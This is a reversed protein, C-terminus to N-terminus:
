KYGKAQLKFLRAYRGNKKLLEEHSGTEVVRGKDMVVIKDAMRVTSFRHSILFTIRDKTLHEFKKFLEYEARADVAATPEDLILIPADRYFARALAIKQWQGVSLDTGGEKLKKGLRTKYKGELEKIFEWAGSKLASGHVDKRANLRGYKINEEVLAEYKMFDQFIVGINDYLDNLGFRTLNVGDILIHGSSVEYLRSLLKVLTTKGSGNEGVLAVSEGPAVTFSVADLAPKKAHPYTFSVNRFEIGKRLPQPLPVPHEAERILPKLRLVKVIPTLFIMHTNLEGTMRVLWRVHAAFQFLLAWLFTLQGVTMSGQLFQAIVLWAAVVSLGTEVIGILIYWRLQEYAAADQKTIFTGFLNWFRSLFHPQLRFSKIEKIASADETLLTRYYYAHRSIPSAESFASWVVNSWRMAVFIGPLAAGLIIPVLRWDAAFLAVLIVGVSVLESLAFTVQWFLEVLRWQNGTARSLTNHYESDEFYGLDLSSIKRMLEHMSYREIRYSHMRRLVSSIDWFVNQMFRAFGYIVLVGVVALGIQQTASLQSGVVSDLLLKFLYPELITLLGGFISIFFIAITLPKSSYYTWRVALKLSEFKDRFTGREKKM